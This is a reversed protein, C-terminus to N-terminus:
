NIFNDTKDKVQGRSTWSQGMDFSQELDLMVEGEVDQFVFHIKLTKKVNLTKFHRVPFYTSYFSFTVVAVSM